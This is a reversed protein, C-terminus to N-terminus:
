NITVQITVMTRGKNNEAFLTITGRIPAKEFRGAVWLDQKGQLNTAFGTGDGPPLIDGTVRVIGLNHVESVYDEVNELIKANLIGGLRSGTVTFTQQPQLQWVPPNQANIPPAGFLKFSSIEFVVGESTLYKVPGVNPALWQYSKTPQITLLGTVSVELEIKACNQFTGAPTVIDEFGVIELNTTSKLDLGLVTTDADIKWKDGQQLVKPFFTTPTPFNATVTEVTNTNFIAQELVTKHLKIANDDVTLFYKDTDFIEGTNIRETEIKLIVSVEDAADEPKELTYTRRQKGNTSDLVWQNGIVSPYYDQATATLAFNCVLGLILIPIIRHFFATTKM